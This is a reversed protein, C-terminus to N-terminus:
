SPVLIDNENLQTEVLGIYKMYNAMDFNLNKEFFRFFKRSSISTNQCTVIYDVMPIFNKNTYIIDHVSLGSYLSFNFDCRRGMVNLLCNKEKMYAIENIVSTGIRINNALKSEKQFVRLYDSTGIIQNSSKQTHIKNIKTLHKIFSSKGSDNKGIVLISKGVKFGGDILDDISPFGTKFFKRPNGWIRKLSNNVDKIINITEIM